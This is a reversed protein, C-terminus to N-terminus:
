LDKDQLKRRKDSDESIEQEIRDLRTSINGEFSSFMHKMQNVIAGELASHFQQQQQEVMGFKSSVHTEHAEQRETMLQMQETLTGIQETTEQLKASVEDLKAAIPGQGFSSVTSANSRDDNWSSIQMNMSRDQRFQADFHRVPADKQFPRVTALSGNIQLHTETPATSAVLLWTKASLARVTRANWGAKKLGETISEATFGDTLGTLVFRLDSPNIECADLICGEPNLVKKVSNFHIRLCRLLFRDRHCVFGLHQPIKQACAQAQTEDTANVAIHAYDPHPKYENDEPWLSIGLPGSSKLLSEVSVTTVRIFGKWFLAVTAHSPKWSLDLSKWGWTGIMVNKDKVVPISKAVMDIPAMNGEWHKCRAKSVVVELIHSEIPAVEVKLGTFKYAVPSAGFQILTAPLLCPMDTSKLTGAVTILHDSLMEHHGLVLIALPDPSIVSVPLFSKAQQLNMPCVGTGGTCMASSFIIPINTGDPGQFDSHFNVNEVLPPLLPAHKSLEVKSGGKGNGKPRTKSESRRAATRLNTQRQKLEQPQVMRVNALTCLNKLAGWVDQQHFCEALQSEPVAATITHVRALAVNEPVGHSTLQERLQNRIDGKAGGRLPFFRFRIVQNLDLSAVPTDLAIRHHNVEAIAHITESVDPAIRELVARVTSRKNAVIEHFRGNIPHIAAVRCESKKDSAKIIFTHMPQALIYESPHIMMDSQTMLLDDSCEKHSYLIAHVISNPTDCMDCLVPCVTDSPSIRFLRAVFKPKFAICIDPHESINMTRDWECMQGDVLITEVLDSRAHPLATRILVGVSVCPTSTQGVWNWTGDLTRLSVNATPCEHEHVVVHTQDFTVTDRLVTSFVIQPVCVSLSQQRYIVDRQFINKPEEPYYLFPTEPICGKLRPLIEDHFEGFDNENRLLKAITDVERQTEATNSPQLTSDDVETHPFAIETPIMTPPSMWLYDDDSNLSMDAVRGVRTKMEVLAEFLNTKGGPRFTQPLVQFVRLLSIISHPVAISNGVVHYAVEKSNPILTGAPFGMSAMQEFPSIWRFFWSDGSDDAQQMIKMFLGKSELLSRSIDRPSAYKAVACPLIQSKPHVREKLPIVAGHKNVFGWDTPWVKKDCLINRDEADISVFKMLESPIFEHIFGCSRPNMMYDLPPFDTPGLSFTRFESAYARNAVIICARNRSMPMVKQLADSGVHVLHFGLEVLKDRVDIWHRHSLLADVNELVLLLPQACMAFELLTHHESGRADDLGRETGLRSWSPCPLSLSGWSVGNQCLFEWVAKEGFDGNITIGMSLHHRFTDHSMKLIEDVRLVHTSTNRSCVNAIEPDIEWFVKYPAGVIEGGKAWGGFGSYADFVVRQDSNKPHRIVVSDPIPLAEIFIFDYGCEHHYPQYVRGGIVSLEDGCGIKMGTRRDHSLLLIIVTHDHAEDRKWQSIRSFPEVWLSEYGTRYRFAENHASDDLKEDDLIRIMLDVAGFSSRLETDSQVWHHDTGHRLM